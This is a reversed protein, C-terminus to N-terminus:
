CCLSSCHPVKNPRPGMTVLLIVELSSSTKWNTQPNGHYHFALSLYMSFVDKWNRSCVSGADILIRIGYVESRNWIIASDM